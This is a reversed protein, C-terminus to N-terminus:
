RIVGGGPVCLNQVVVSFYASYAPRLAWILPVLWGERLTPTLLNLNTYETVLPKKHDGRGDNAILDRNATNTASIKRAEANVAFIYKCIM